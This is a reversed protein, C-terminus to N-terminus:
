ERAAAVATSILEAVAAPAALPASHSTCVDTVTAGARAAMARQAEPRLHKDRTAVVYWTSRHRWAPDGCPTIYIDESIPRREGAAAARAAEPVDWSHQAWEEDAAGPMLLADGAAPLLGQFVEAPGHRAIVDDISEGDDPAFAAVYVLGRVRDHRGADTIVAGGYSHGVLIADHPSRDLADRVAAVNDSHSRSPHDIATVEIGGAELLPAVLMWTLPSGGAGHVLVVHVPDSM